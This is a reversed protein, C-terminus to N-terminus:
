RERRRLSPVSNLGAVQKNLDAVKDAQVFAKSTPKKAIV